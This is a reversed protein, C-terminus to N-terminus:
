IKCSNAIIMYIALSISWLEGGSAVRAIPKCSQGANDTVTFEIQDLGYAFSKSTVPTITREFKGGNMGLTQMSQTINKNLKRAANKRSSTLKECAHIYKLELDKQQKGLEDLREDVHDIDDLEKQLQEHLSTLTEPEVRHKRALDLINQIRQEANALQSVDLDINDHYNQLLSVSEDIQVLAETLMEAAPSLSEDIENISTISSIIRSISSQINNNEDESLSYIAQQVTTNIKEANALSKHQNNLRQYENEQLALADLEQTQFRLLDLRDNQENSTQQLHQLQDEVLKLEVYLNSVAELLPSHKAYDDLLQRQVSSKM